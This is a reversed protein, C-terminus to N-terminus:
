PSQLDGLGSPRLSEVHFDLFLYDRLSGHVPNNAETPCGDALYIIRSVPTLDTGGSVISYSMPGYQQSDSSQTGWVRTGRIRQDQNAVYVNYLRGQGDSKWDPYRRRFAPCILNDPVPVSTTRESLGLYPSLSGFLNNDTPRRYSPTQGNAGLHMLKDNHDAIYGATAIGIQRMNAVCTARHAAAIASRTAFMGIAALVVIITIVVLLETLTFAAAHAKPRQGTM